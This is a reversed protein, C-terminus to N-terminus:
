FLVRFEKTQVSADWWQDLDNALFSMWFYYKNSTGFMGVTGLTGDTNVNTESWTQDMMNIQASSPQPLFETSPDLTM